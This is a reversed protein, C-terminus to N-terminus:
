KAMLPRAFGQFLPQRVQSMQCHSALEWVALHVPSQRLLQGSSCGRLLGLFAQMEELVQVKAPNTLDEEGVFGQSPVHSLRILELGDSIGLESGTRGLYGGRRRRGGRWASIAPARAMLGEAGGAFGECDLAPRTLLHAM